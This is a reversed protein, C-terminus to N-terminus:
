GRQRQQQGARRLEVAPGPQYAQVSHDSLNIGSLVVKCTSTTANYRLVSGVTSHHCHGSVTVNNRYQPLARWAAALLSM